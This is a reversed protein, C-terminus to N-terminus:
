NFVVCLRNVHIFDKFKLNIKKIGTSRLAQLILICVTYIAGFSYSVYLARQFGLSPLEPKEDQGPWVTWETLEPSSCGVSPPLPVDTILYTPESREGLPLIRQWCCFRRGTEVTGSSRRLSGSDIGCNETWWQIGKWSEVLLTKWLSPM